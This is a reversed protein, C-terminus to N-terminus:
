RIMMAKITNIGDSDYGQDKEINKVEVVTGLQKKLSEIGNSEGSISIGIAQIFRLDNEAKIRDVNRSLEWFVSLPLKLFDFYSISYFHM